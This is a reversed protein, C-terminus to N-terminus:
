TGTKMFINVRMYALLKKDLLEPEYMEGEPEELNMAKAGIRLKINWTDKEGEVGKMSVDDKMM